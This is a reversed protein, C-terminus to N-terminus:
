GDSDTFGPEIRDLMSQVEDVVLEPRVWLIREMATGDAIVSRSDTSLSAYFALGDQWYDNVEEAVADGAYDRMGQSLYTEPDQGIVVLPASGLDGLAASTEEDLDPWPPHASVDPVVGNLFDQFGIPMPDVLVMGAVDVGSDAFLRTSHVGDGNAVLLYPGDLGATELATTLDAAREEPPPITDRGVYGHSCTMLGDEALMAQVVSWSGYDIWGMADLIVTAPGDYSGPDARLAAVAEDDLGAVTCLLRHGDVTQDVVRDGEPLFEADPDMRLLAGPHYLPVWLSGATDVMGGPKGPLPYGAFELTEPDIRTVIHDTISTVWLAGGSEEMSLLGGPLAVPVAEGSEVDLRVVGSGEAQDGGQLLWLHGGAETVMRLDDATPLPGVGLDIGIEGTTGSEDISSLIDDGDPHVQWLYGLGEGKLAGPQIDLVEGDASIQRIVGGASVWLRDGFWHVRPWPPMEADLPITLDVAGEAPDFRLVEGGDDLGTLWVYGGGVAVGEAWPEIPYRGVVSDTATDVRVLENMAASMVWVTDGNAAVTRLGGGGIDVAAEIGPLEVLDAGGVLDTVQQDDDAPDDRLLILPALVAAVAVFSVMAAVLPRRLLGPTPRRTPEGAGAIRRDVEARLRDAPVELDAAPDARTLLDLPDTM